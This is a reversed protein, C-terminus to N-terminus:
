QEDENFLISIQREAAVEQEVTQPASQEVNKSGLEDPEVNNIVKATNGSIEEREIHNDNGTTEKKKLIKKYPPQNTKQTEYKREKVATKKVSSNVLDRLRKAELNAASFLEKYHKTKLSDTGFVDRAISKKLDSNIQLEDIAKKRFDANNGDKKRYSLIQLQGYLFRLVRTSINIKSEEIIHVFLESPVPNNSSQNLGLQAQVCERNLLQGGNAKSVLIVPPHNLMHPERKVSKTWHSADGILDQTSRVQLEAPLSMCHTPLPHIQLAIKM